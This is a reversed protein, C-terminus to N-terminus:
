ILHRPPPSLLQAIGTIIVRGTKSSAVSVVWGARGMTRRAASAAVVEVRIAERDLIM